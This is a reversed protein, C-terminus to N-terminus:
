TMGVDLALAFRREQMPAATDIGAMRILLGMARAPLLAQRFSSLLRNV